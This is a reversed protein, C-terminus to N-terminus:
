PKYFAERLGLIMAVPAVTTGLAWKWNTGKLPFPRHVKEYHKASHAVLETAYVEAVLVHDCAHRV